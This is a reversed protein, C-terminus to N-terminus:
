SKSSNYYRSRLILGAIMLLPILWLWKRNMSKEFELSQPNGSFIFGAWYYPHAKVPDSNMLYTLKAQRLADDKRMGEKLNSYFYTMLESTSEDNVPWLSMVVNPSGAYTFAKALSQIGEGKQIKGTGTNCASLTVLQAKFNQNYLEYAYISSDANESLYLRSTAPSSHNVTAHTALHIIDSNSLQELLATKPLGSLNSGGIIKAIENVEIISGEILEPKNSRITLENLIPQQSDVHLAFLSSKEVKKYQVRQSALMMSVSPVYRITYDEILRADKGTKLLEFPLYFLEASPVVVLKNGNIENIASNLSLVHFLSDSIETEKERVLSLFSEIKKPLDQTEKRWMKVGRKSVLVCTINSQNQLLDTENTVYLLVSEDEQLQEQLQTLSPYKNIKEEYFSPHKTKIEAMLSDMRGKQVMLLEKDGDTQTELTKIELELKQKFDLVSSPVDLGDKKLALLFAPYSIATKIRESTYLLKEAYQIDNTHQYLYYYLDSATSYFKTMLNLFSSQDRQYEIGEWVISLISDSKLFNDNADLLISGNGTERYNEILSSIGYTSANGYFILHLDGSPSGNLKNLYLDETKQFAQISSNWQGAYNYAKALLNWTRLENTYNNASGLKKLIEEYLLIGKDPDDIEVVASAYNIESSITSPDQPGYQEVKLNLAKLTYDKAKKPDSFFYIRGLNNYISALQDDNYIYKRADLEKLTYAAALEYEQLNYYTIALNRCATSFYQNKLDNEMLQYMVQAFRLAKDLQRIGDYFYFASNYFRALESPNNKNLKENIELGKNLIKEAENYKGTNVLILLYNSYAKATKKHYSGYANEWNTLAKQYYETAIENERFVNNYLWGLGFYMEGVGVGDEGMKETAQKLGNQLSKLTKEKDRESLYIYLSLYYKSQFYREWKEEKEFEHLARNLYYAGSDFQNSQFLASGKIFDSEFEDEQRAHSHLALTLILIVLISPSKKM